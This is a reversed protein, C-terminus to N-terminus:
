EKIPKISKAQLQKNLAEMKTHAYREGEKEAEVFYKKFPSANYGLDPHFVFDAQLLQPDIRGRRRVVKQFQKQSANSPIDDIKASVDIAIIFQAGAQRAAEVAVPLSEDADIYSIGNIVTPAFVNLVSSSARVAVGLNGEKFFVATGDEERTAAIILPIPLEEISIDEFQRNVYNQLREGKIWGKKLFLSFDFLTLPGGTAALQSIEEASYGAALYSGVLSGVSSGVVLDIPINYQELVKLIGIHAFGRPGGSGLVVAIKPKSNFEPIETIAIPSIPVLPNM